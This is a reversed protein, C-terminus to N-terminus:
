EDSFDGPQGLAYALGARAGAYKAEFAVLKLTEDLLTRDRTNVLFLTSEGSEFRRVEGDRLDRAYSVAARQRELISEFTVVEFLATLIQARVDRTIISTELGAIDAKFRSADFNGREKMLLLSSKAMLGIKNNDGVSPWGGGLLGANADNALASGEFRADPLLEQRFLRRAAEAQRLKALAKLIDPHLRLAQELWRDAMSPDIREADLGGLDPRADATLDLPAGDADWLYLNVALRTANAAADAELRLVKRRELELRAEITDIAAADGNIVRQRVADLRFQALAVGTDAVARRREAEYWASYDKVAAFLLKNVIAARDAEAFDRMAVAQAVATRRRDTLIGRALPVSVGAVLLGSSPTTRDPNIFIGTPSTREYGLKVDIGLPTPIKVGAEVYDYYSSGSFTKRDWTVSAVPDWIGGRAALLEAGAIRRALRAQEAVPHRTLVLQTFAPLNLPVTEVLVLSARLTDQAGAALTFALWTGLLISV